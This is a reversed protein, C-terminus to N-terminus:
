EDTPNSPSLPTPDLASIETSKPTKDKDQVCFQKPRLIYNACRTHTYRKCDCGSLVDKIGKRNMKKGWDFEACTHRVAPSQSSSLPLNRRPNSSCPLLKKEAMMSRNLIANCTNCDESRMVNKKMNMLRKVEGELGGSRMMM